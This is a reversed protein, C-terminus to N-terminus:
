FFIDRTLRRFLPFKCWAHAQFHKRTNHSNRVLQLHQALKACAECLSACAACLSACASPTTRIRVLKACNDELPWIKRMEAGFRVRNSANSEQSRPVEGIVLYNAIHVYWPAAEILMLSEEPFDDNIPLNHSTHAISAEVFPRSGCKWERRTKSLWCEKKATTYNRQEENLTKSAYYIVYPKGDRNGLFLEFKADKVLLECLPRAHKSFDKIFRRLAKAPSLIGLSSGKPVMFHCKEWNLVLDKEICRNLFSSYGDLFYYFPHGKLRLSAHLFKEGKDNQVVTIRIEKARSTYSEGM